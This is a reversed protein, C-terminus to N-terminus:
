VSRSLDNISFTCLLSIIFNESIFFKRGSRQMKSKFL